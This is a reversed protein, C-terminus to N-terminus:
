KSLTQIQRGLLKIKVKMKPYKVNLLVTDLLTFPAEVLMREQERQLYIYESFNPGKGGHLWRWITTCNSYHDTM